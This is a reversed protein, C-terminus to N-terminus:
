DAKKRNKAIYIILMAEVLINGVAFLIDSGLKISVVYFILLGLLFWIIVQDKVVSVPNRKKQNNGDGKPNTNSYLYISILILFAISWSISIIWFNFLDYYDM